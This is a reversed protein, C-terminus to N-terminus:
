DSGSKMLKKGRSLFKRGLNSAFHGTEMKDKVLSVKSRISTHRRIDSHQANQYAQTAIKGIQIHPSTESSRLIEQLWHNLGTDYNSEDEQAKRLMNIRDVPQSASMIQKWNFVPYKQKPLTRATAISAESAKRTSDASLADSGVKTEPATLEHSPINDLSADTTNLEKFKPSDYSRENFVSATNTPVTHLDGQSFSKSNSDNPHEEDFGDEDIAPMPADITEPVSVLSSNSFSEAYGSPPRLGTFKNYNSEDGNYISVNMQSEADNQSVFQDRYMNTNPTWSGLNFTQASATSIRRDLRTPDRVAPSALNPVANSVEYASNATSLSGSSIVPELRSGSDQRSSAVLKLLRTDSEAAKSLQEESKKPVPPPAKRVSASRSLVSSLFNEHKKQIEQPAFDRNVPSEAETQHTEFDPLSLDHISSLSPLEEPVADADNVHDDEINRSTDHAAKEKAIDSKSLQDLYGVPVREMKLLDDILSDLADTKVPHLNLSDDSAVREAPRLGGLLEDNSSHESNYGWDDEEDSSVVIRAKAHEADVIDEYATTRTESPAAVAEHHSGYHDDDFSSDDSSNLNMRDITLVLEEPADNGQSPTDTERNPLEERIENLGGYVLNLSEPERQISDTDSMYSRDSQPTEPTFPQVPKLSFTPTPPFFDSDDKLGQTSIPALNNPPPRHHTEPPIEESTAQAPAITETEDDSYEQATGAGGYHDTYGSNGPENRASYTDYDNLDDHYNEDYTQRYDNQSAEHTNQQYVDEHDEHDEHYSGPPYVPQTDEEGSDEDLSNESQKMQDITLVLPSATASSTAEVPTEAAVVPTAVGSHEKSTQPSQEDIEDLPADYDYGYEDYQDGWSDYSQSKSKVWRTSRHRSFNEAM